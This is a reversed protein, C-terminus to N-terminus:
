GGIFIEDRSIRVLMDDRFRPTVLYPDAGCLGIKNNATISDNSFPSIILLQISGTPSNNIWKRFIHSLNTM